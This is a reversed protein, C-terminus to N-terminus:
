LYKSIYRYVDQCIDLYKDEQEWQTMRLSWLVEHWNSETTLMEFVPTALGQSAWLMKSRVKDMALASALYGSGTYPINMLDLAAQVRGDEGYNGHLMVFARDFTEKEISAFFDNGTDIGVANIGGALLAELVANGSLLSIERESSQGGMLVAVKGFEDSM